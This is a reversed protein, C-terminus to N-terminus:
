LKDNGSEALSRLTHLEKKGIILPKIFKTCVVCSLLPKNIEQYKGSWKLEPLHPSPIKLNQIRKLNSLEDEICPQRLVDEGLGFKVVLVTGNEDELLRVPKDPDGPNKRLLDIIDNVSSIKNYKKPYLSLLGRADFALLRIKIEM